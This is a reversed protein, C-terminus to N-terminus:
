AVLFPRGPYVGIPTPDASQVLLRKSYVLHEVRLIMPLTPQCSIIGTLFGPCRLVGPENNILNLHEVDHGEASDGSSGYFLNAARWPNARDKRVTEHITETRDVAEKRLSVEEVVRATKGVVAEEGTQTMEITKDTVDADAVPRGDTVPRREVRVTESRLSVSEEVPTEVVFRRVVEERRWGTAATFADNVDMIQLNALSLIAMPGPAMKFAVAFREESQRLADEAKKRPHLDAFTFLMCHEDGIEIPQGGLLVTKEQGDALKLCGEMQPITAGAHLREVALDRREAGRLVDIDHLSRSIIEDRHYGTLELFGRNVKVYRMDSLRAIIAPAPNAGFAREFRDEANFRDTEDNLILVLCDPEGRPDTLVMTRLQHVWRKDDGPCVVEVVVESFAEGALLREMPHDGAPIKHQNRYRLEFRQRYEGVNKGLEGIAKVGHLALATANAWAISQDPEIIIVGETLGSIIQQLQTRDARHTPITDAM